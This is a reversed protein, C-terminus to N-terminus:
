TITDSNSNPELSKITQLSERMYRFLYSVILLFIGSVFLASMVILNIKLTHHNALIAFVWLLCEMFSLYSLGKFIDELTEYSRYLLDSKQM